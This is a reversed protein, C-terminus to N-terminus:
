GCQVGNRRDHWWSSLSQPQSEDFVQKLLALRERWFRFNDIHRDDTKLRGCQMVRKDLCHYQPLNLLWKRTQSDASPFLLALTRLTEEGLGQPLITDVSQKQMELFSAHHFIHVRRDDDALRLHDLLNDTWVIELSAIMVVNRATFVRELKVREQALDGASSEFCPRISARLSDHSSWRLWRRGSFGYSYSCFSMMLLLSAALDISNDLMEDENAHAATLRSRMEEKIDQRRIGSKLKGVCDAVDGQTRMAVHRGGDHLARTCEEQYYKWYYELTAQPRCDWFPRAIAAKTPETLPQGLLTSDLLAGDDM